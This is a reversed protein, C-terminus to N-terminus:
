YVQVEFSLNRVSERVVDGLDLHDGPDYNDLADTILENVRAEFDDHSVVSTIATDADFDPTEDLRLEVKNLRENLNELIPKTNDITNQVREAIAALAATDSNNGHKIKEAVLTALADVFSAVIDQPTTM